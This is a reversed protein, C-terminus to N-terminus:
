REKSSAIMAVRYVRNAFRNSISRGNGEGVGPIVCVKESM